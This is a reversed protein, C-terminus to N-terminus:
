SKDSKNTNAEDSSSDSNSSSQSNPKNMKNTKSDSNAADSKMEGPMQPNADDSKFGNPKNMGSSNDNFETVSSLLVLESVKSDSIELKVYDGTNIDTIAIAKESEDTIVIEENYDLKTVIGCSTFSNGSNNGGQMSGFGNENNSKEEFFGVSSDASDSSNNNNTNKNNPTASPNPVSGNEPAKDSPMDDMNPAQDSPGINMGPAGQPPKQGQNGGPMDNMRNPFGGNGNFGNLLAGVEITIARDGITKVKGYLTDSVVINTDSTNCGVLMFLMSLCIIIASIRIYTIKMSDETKKMIYNSDISTLRVFSYFCFVYETNNILM